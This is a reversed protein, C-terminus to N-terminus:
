KTCYNHISYLFPKPLLYLIAFLFLDLTSGIHYKIVHKKSTGLDFVSSQHSSILVDAESIEYLWEDVTVQECKEELDGEEYFDGETFRLFGNLARSKVTVLNELLISVMGIIVERGISHFIAFSANSWRSFHLKSANIHYKFNLM